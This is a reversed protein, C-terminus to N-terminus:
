EDASSRATAPARAAAEWTAPARVRSTVWATWSVAVLAGPIPGIRWCGAATAAWGSRHERCYEGIPTNGGSPAM